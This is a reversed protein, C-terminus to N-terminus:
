AFIIETKYANIKKNLKFYISAEHNLLWTRGLVLRVPLAIYNNVDLLAKALIKGKIKGEAMLIIKKANIIVEPTISIRRKPFKPANLVQMLKFNNKMSFNNPFLSAIHGDEGVSLIILDISDPLIKSYREIENSLDKTDAKIREVQNKPINNFLKPSISSFISDKSNKPVDKMQSIFNVTKYRDFSLTNFWKDYLKMASRGGTLMITKVPNKNSFNDIENM